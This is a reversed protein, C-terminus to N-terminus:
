RCAQAVIETSGCEEGDEIGIEGEAICTEECGHRKEILHDALAECEELANWCDRCQRGGNRTCTKARWWRLVRLRSFTMTKGRGGWALVASGLGDALNRTVSDAHMGLMAAVERRTMRDTTETTM